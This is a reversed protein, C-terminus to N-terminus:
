DQKTWNQITLDEIRQFHKENNTVLVLNNSIATAAIFLDSDNIMKGKNKMDAKIKGFQEGSKPDFNLINIESILENTLKLNDIVRSSNYAGFYLEAVTISSIFLRDVEICAIKEKIQPYIGKLWYIIIDTDILYGDSM